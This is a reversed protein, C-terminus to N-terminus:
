EEHLRLVPMRERGVTEGADAGSRRDGKEGIDTEVADGGDGFFGAIGFAVHGDADDARQDDAGQHIHRDGGYKGADHRERKQLCREGMLLGLGEGQGHLVDVEAPGRDDDTEAGNGCLDGHEQHELEPLRPYEEGHRAVAKKGRDKGLYVGAEFCGIDGRDNDPCDGRQDGGEGVDILHDVQGIDAREEREHQYTEADDDQADLLRATLAPEFYRQIRDEGQQADGGANEQHGPKRYDGPYAEDGPQDDPQDDIKGVAHGM